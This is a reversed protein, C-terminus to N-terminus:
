IYLKGKPELGVNKLFLKLKNLIFKEFNIFILKQTKM